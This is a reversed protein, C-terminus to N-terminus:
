EEVIHLIMPVGGVKRVEIKEAVGGALLIGRVVGGV